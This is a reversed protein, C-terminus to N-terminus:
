VQNKTNLEHFSDNHPHPMNLSIYVMGESVDLCACVCVSLCMRFM